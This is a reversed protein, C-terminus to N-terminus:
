EFDAAVPTAPALDQIATINSITKEDEFDAVIPTSPALVITSVDAVPAGDNFDAVMPVVPSLANINISASSTETVDEFTAVAPTAPAIMTAAVESITLNSSIGSESYNVAAFMTNIHLGLIVAIIYHPKMTKM